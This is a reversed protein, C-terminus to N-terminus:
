RGEGALFEEALELIEVGRKAQKESPKRRWGGAAYGALTNAIGCQWEALRGTESGWLQIKFWTEADVELCRAIHNATVHSSGPRGAIVMLEGKV